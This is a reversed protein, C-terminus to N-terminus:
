EERREYDSFVVPALSLIAELIETPRPPPCGGPVEAAIPPIHKRVPPDLYTGERNFVCGSIPCNGIAIAAKPEPIKDWVM